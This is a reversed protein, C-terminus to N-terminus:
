IIAIVFDARIVSNHLRRRFRDMAIRAKAKAAIVNMAAPLVAM